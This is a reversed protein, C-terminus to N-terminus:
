AIQRGPAMRMAHRGPSNWPGGGGGGDDNGVIQNTWWKQWIEPSDSRYEDVLYFFGAYNSEGFERQLCLM